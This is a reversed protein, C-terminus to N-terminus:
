KGLEFRVFRKVQVNERVQAIAETVLDQITKSPDKIFPQSLLCVEEPSATSDPPLDAPSLYEPAMAVVQMALDHALTKFQPTRAVFDTECNVEVIAGLRGGTHVYVEILGQEATRGMKKAAIDVGRTALLKEALEIDGNSEELARKSDMIGAGTRERLAKIAQTPVAM